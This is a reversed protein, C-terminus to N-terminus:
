VKLFKRVSIMSGLAGIGSGLVTFVIMIDKIIVKPNILEIRWYEFLRTSTSVFFNDYGYNVIAVSIISAILGLLLGEIIFPGRIYSDTAGVFKMINIERSRSHVTLKITNSIIFISILILIAIIVVGGIKIYKTMKILKNVSDQYNTAGEVGDLELLGELVKEINSINDIKIVFSNPLISGDLGELVYGEEGWDEKISEMAELDSLFTYDLIHPNNNFAREIDEMEYSSIDDKLYIHPTDFEKQVDLVLNNISLILIIILGLILLVSTISAISALSMGRNRWVGKFGGKIMNGLAKFIVITGAKRRM